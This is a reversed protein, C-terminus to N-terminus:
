EGVLGRVDSREVGHACRAANGNGEHVARGRGGDLTDDMVAVRRRDDGRGRQHPRYAKAGVDHDVGDRFKEGPMGVGRQAIDGRAVRGQAEAPSQGIKLALADRLANLINPNLTVAILSVNLLMFFIFNLRNWRSGRLVYFTVILGIIGILCGLIRLTSM